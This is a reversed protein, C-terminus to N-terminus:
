NMVYDMPTNWYQSVGFPIVWRATLFPGKKSGYIFLWLHQKM